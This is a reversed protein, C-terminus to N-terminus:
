VNRDRRRHEGATNWATHPLKSKQPKCCPYHTISGQKVSNRLENYESISRHQAMKCIITYMFIYDLVHIHLLELKCCSKWVCASLVSFMVYMLISPRVVDFVFLCRALPLSTAVIDSHFLIYIYWLSRQLMFTTFFQTYCFQTAFTLYLIFHTSFDHFLVYYKPISSKYPLTPHCFSLMTVYM